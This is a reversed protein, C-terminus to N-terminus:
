NTTSKEKKKNLNKINREIGDISDNLTKVENQLNNLNPEIDKQFSEFTTKFDNIITPINNKVENTLTTIAQKVHTTQAKVDDLQNKVHTAQNKINLRVDSGAKSTNFLVTTAAIVAGTVVGLLFENKKVNSFRKEKEIILCTNGCIIIFLVILFFTKVIKRLSM